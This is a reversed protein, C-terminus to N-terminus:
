SLAIALKPNENKQFLKELIPFFQPFEEKLKSNIKFTPKM